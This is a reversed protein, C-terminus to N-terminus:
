AHAAAAPASFFATIAADAAHIGCAEAAARMDAPVSATLILPEGTAPHLMTLRAAHLAQRRIVGAAAGGYQSDGMIPAGCFALHLRIQHTRGTLPRAGVLAAQPGTALVHVHTVAPLGGAACMRMVGVTPHRAVPAEVVWSSGTEWRVGSPRQLQQGAEPAGAAQPDVCGASPAATRSQSERASSADADASLAVLAVYEKVATKARFQAAMAGAARSTKGFVMVGSTDKQLNSSFCFARLTLVLLLGAFPASSYLGRALWM